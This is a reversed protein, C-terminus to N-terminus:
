SQLVRKRVANVGFAKALQFDARKGAIFVAM